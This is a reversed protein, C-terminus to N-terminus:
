RKDKKSFQYLLQNLIPTLIAGGAQVGRGIGKQIPIRTGAMAGLSVASSAPLPLGLAGALGGKWWGHWLKDPDLKRVLDSLEGYERFPERLEPIEKKLQTSAEGSLAQKTRQTTKQVGRKKGIKGIEGFVEDGFQTKVANLSEPAIEDGFKAIRDHVKFIAKLYSEDGAKLAKSYIDHISALIPATKIPTGRNSVLIDDIKKGVGSSLKKASERISKPLFGSTKGLVPGLIKRSLLSSGAGLVTDLGLERGAAGESGPAFANIGTTGLGLPLGKPGIQLLSPGPPSAEGKAIDEVYGTTAPWIFRPIATGRSYINELLSKGEDGGGVISGLLGARAQSPAATTPPQGGTPAEQQGAAQQDRTFRDIGPIRQAEEPSLKRIGYPNAADTTAGPLGTTDTVGSTITGSVGEKGEIQRKINIIGPPIPVGLSSAESEIQKVLNNVSEIREEQTDGPRPMISKWREVDKDTAVGVESAFASAILRAFGETQRELMEAEGGAVGPRRGTWARIWGEVGTPATLAYGTMTELVPSAQNLVTTRNRQDATLETDKPLLGMKEFQNLLRSMETSGEEGLGGSLFLQQMPNLGSENGFVGGPVGSSGGQQTPPTVQQYNSPVAQDYPLEELEGTQRNLATPM